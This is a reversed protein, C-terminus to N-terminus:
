RLYLAVSHWVQAAQRPISELSRQPLETVHPRIHSCFHVFLAVRQGQGSASPAM